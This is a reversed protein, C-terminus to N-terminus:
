RPSDNRIPDTRETSWAKGSGAPPQQEATLLAKKSNQVFQMLSRSMYYPKSIGDNRDCDECFCLFITDITMEYVSVFCHVIFFAFLGALVLPVWSHHVNEKKQILEIGILVTVAVVFAKGLLLVFDGVSNIAFVRLANGALTEAARRGAVCFPQGTIATEIYANRTLYQVTQEICGLCCQCATWLVQTISNQPNNLALEAARFVLRVLKLLAIILAGLAVTGLHYRLLNRFSRAIPWGLASKNRTFFWSAVAGAVIMHQCGIIFQSMWFLTLVSYWRTVLIAPNKVYKASTGNEITLEGASEIWLAFYLWLGILLGLAVFTQLYPINFFFFHLYHFM